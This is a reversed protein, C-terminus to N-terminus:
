RFRRREIPLKYPLHAKPLRLSISEREGSPLILTCKITAATRQCTLFAGAIEQPASAPVEEPEPDAKPLTKEVIPVPSKHESESRVKSNDPLEVSQQTPSPANTTPLTTSPIPALASSSPSGRSNMAYESSCAVGTSVLGLPVITLRLHIMKRGIM